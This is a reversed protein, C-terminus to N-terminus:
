AQGAKKNGVNAIPEPRKQPNEQRLMVPSRIVDTQQHGRAANGSQQRRKWSPEDGISRPVLTKHERYQADHNGPRRQQEPEALAAADDGDRLDDAAYTRCKNARKNGPDSQPQRPLIAKTGLHTFILSEVM